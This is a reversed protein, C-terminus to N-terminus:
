FVADNAEHNDFFQIFFYNVAPRKEITKGEFGTLSGASLAFIEDFVRGREADNTVDDYFSLDQLANKWRGNM